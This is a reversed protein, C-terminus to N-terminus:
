NRWQGSSNMFKKILENDYLKKRRGAM